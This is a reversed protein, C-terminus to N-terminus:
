FVHLCLTYLTYISLTRSFGWRGPISYMVKTLPFPCQGACYHAEFSKPAIIWDSWGIDAFDVILKRKGCVHPQSHMAPIVNDRNEEQRALAEWEAPLPLTKDKRKNKRRQKRRQSRSSESEYGDPYPILRSESVDLSLASTPPLNYEMNTVPEGELEQPIENDYISRRRRSALTSTLSPTPNTNASETSVSNAKQRDQREAKAKRHKKRQGAIETGTMPDIMTEGLDRPNFYPELHDLTINQTDNSFVILFPKYPRRLLRKANLRRHGDRNMFKVAIAHCGSSLCSTLASTVDYEQWGSKSATMPVLDGTIYQLPTLQTLQLQIDKKRRYLHVEGDFVLESPNISSLNFIVTKKGDIVGSVPAFM